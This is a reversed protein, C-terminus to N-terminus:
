YLRWVVAFPRRCRGNIAQVEFLTVTVRAIGAGIANWVVQQVNTRIVTPPNGPGLADGGRMEGSNIKLVTLRLDNQIVNGPPDTYVLTVKLTRAAQEPPINWEKDWLATPLDPVADAALGNEDVFDTYGHTDTFPVNPAGLAPPVSCVLDVRGFGQETMPIGDIIQAGNILLAKILAASLRRNPGVPYIGHLLASRLSAACGSVIPAAMSTGSMERLMSINGAVARGGESGQWRTRASIIGVGPAVLDPKIRKHVDQAHDAPGRSSSEWITNAGNEEARSSLTAGVTIINKAAALGGIQGGTASLVTGDNGAAVVVIQDWNQWIFADATQARNSDTYLIQNGNPQFENEDWSHNSIRAGYLTYPPRLLENMDHPPNVGYSDGGLTPCMSQLILKARPATGHVDAGMDGPFPRGLACGAVHTGHGHRDTLSPEVYGAGGVEPSLSHLVALVRSRSVADHPAHHYLHGASDGPHTLSAQFATHPNASSGLDFGNDAVAIVEGQGEYSVRSPAPAALVRDRIARGVGVDNRAIRTCLRAPLEPAISRVEEHKAIADITAQNASHICLVSNGVYQFLLGSSKDLQKQIQDAIVVGYVGKHLTVCINFKQSSETASELLRKLADTCKTTADIPHSVTMDSRQKIWELPRPTPDRHDCHCLYSKAGLYEDITINHSSIERRQEQTLYELDEAKLKIHFWTYSTGLNSPGAGVSTAM